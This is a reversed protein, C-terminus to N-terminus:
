NPRKYKGSCKPKGGCRQRAQLAAEASEFYQRALTEADSVALLARDAAQAPCHVDLPRGKHDTANLIAYDRGGGPRYVAVDGDRPAFGPPPPFRAAVARM